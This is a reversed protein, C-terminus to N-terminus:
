GRDEFSSPLTSNMWVVNTGQDEKMAPITDPDIPAKMVLGRICHIGINTFIMTPSIGMVSRILNDLGVGSIRCLIVTAEYSENFEADPRADFAEIYVDGNGLFLSNFLCRMTIILTPNKLRELICHSTFLSLDNNSMFPLPTNAAGLSGKLRDTTRLAVFRRVHEPRCWVGPDQLKPLYNSTCMITKSLRITENDAGKIPDGGTIAKLNSINIGHRATFELDQSMIVRSGSCFAIDNHTVVRSGVLVSGDLVSTRDRLINNVISMATSKGSGSPGTLIVLYNSISPEVICNGLTWMFTTLSDGFTRELWRATNGNMRSSSDAKSMVPSYMRMKIGNLSLSGDVVGDMATGKLVNVQTLEFASETETINYRVRLCVSLSIYYCPLETMRIQNRIPKTAIMYNVPAMAGIRECLYNMSSASELSCWGCAEDIYISPEDSINALRFEKLMRSVHESLVSTVGRSSDNVSKGTRAMKEIDPTASVLKGDLSLDNLTLESM